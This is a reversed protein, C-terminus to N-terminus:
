LEFIRAEALRRAEPLVDAGQQRYQQQRRQRDHKGQAPLARNQLAAQQICPLGDGQTFGGLLRQPQRLEGDVLARYANEPDTPVTMHAIGVEGGFLHEAVAHTTQEPPWQDLNLLTQSHVTPQGQPLTRAAAPFLRQTELGAAQAGVAAMQRGIYRQTKQTKALSFIQHDVEGIDGLPAAGQGGQLFALRPQLTNGGVHRTQHETQLTRLRLCRHIKSKDAFAALM